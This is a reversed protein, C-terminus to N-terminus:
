PLAELLDEIHLSINGMVGSPSDRTDLNNMATIVVDALTTDFHTIQSLILDLTQQMLTM